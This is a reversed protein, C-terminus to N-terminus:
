ATLYKIVYVANQVVVIGILALGVAYCIYSSIRSFVRKNDSYEHATIFRKRLLGDSAKPNTAEAVREFYEDRRDVLRRLGEWNMDVEFIYKDLHEVGRRSATFASYDRNEKIITPCRFQFLINALTFFLASFYFLTWSFPLSLQVEFYHGFVVVKAKEGIHEFTKALIPVVIIWIYMSRVVVLKSLPEIKSWKLRSLIDKM